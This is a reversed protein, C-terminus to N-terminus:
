MVQERFEKLKLHHLVSEDMEDRWVIAVDDEKKSPHSAPQLCCEAINLVSGPLWTGGPKSKDTTDLICKPPEHFIVSLEKLVISWYAQFDNAFVLNFLSIFRSIYRMRFIM